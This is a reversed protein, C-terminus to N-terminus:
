QTSLNNQDITWSIMTGGFPQKLLRYEGATVNAYVDNTVILLNSFWGRDCCRAIGPLGKGRYPMGTVTRHLHGDLIAKLFEANDRRPVLRELLVRWSYFKEGPRKQDLSELVGIGFDVFVFAVSRRGRHHNVSLWWHQEGQGERAAHNNTNQMLELLATQAGQIRRTGNWITKAAFELIRASLLPEVRLRGNTHIKNEDGVSYDDQHAVKGYLTDFFGSRILTQDVDRDTPHSGNFPISERKFEIMISLLVVIADYDFRRVRSLSVLTPRRRQLNRAVKAFFALTQRTGEAMSLETPAEITSFGPLSPRGPQIRRTRPAGLLDVNRRRRYARHSARRRANRRSRREQYRRCRQRDRIRKM